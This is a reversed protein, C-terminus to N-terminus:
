AHGLRKTTSYLSFGIVVDFRHGSSGRASHFFV